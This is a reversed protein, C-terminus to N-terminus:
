DGIIHLKLLTKSLSIKIDDISSNKNLLLYENFDNSKIFDNIREIINIKSCNYSEKTEDDYIIM